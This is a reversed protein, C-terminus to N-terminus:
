AAVTYTFTYIVSESGTRSATVTIVLNTSAGTLDYTSGETVTAGTVETKYTVGAPADSVTIDVCDATTDVYGTISGEAGNAVAETAVTAGNTESGTVTVTPASTVAPTQTVSDPDHSFAITGGNASVSYSVAGSGSDTFTVNSVNVNYTQALEARVALIVADRSPKSGVYQVTITRGSVTVDIADSVTPEEPEEASNNDIVVLLLDSGNDTDSVLVSLIKDDAAPLRGTVASDFDGGDLEILVTEDTLVFEKDGSVVLTSDSIHNAAANVDILKNGTNSASAATLRYTGDSNVSYLYLGNVAATLGDDVNIEVEESTGALIASVVTYDSTVRETGTVYLHDSVNTSALGADEFAVAIVRSESNAGLVASGDTGSTDVSPANRYGTYVDVDEIIGDDNLDVYFFVTSNTAYLGNGLSTSNRTFTFHDNSSDINAATLRIEGDRNMSYAYIRTRDATTDSDFADGLDVSNDALNYAATTGDSLTVKVRDSDINGKEYAWVYAYNYANESVNGVAVIMGNQDLYFTAENDLTTSSAYGSAARIDDSGGTFGAVESISYVEGDVTMSESGKYAELTGTVSEALEVHLKGGIWAAMVYDDEALEDFGVVDDKDDARLDSVSSSITISGDNRDSIRDVQGFYSTNVLIYDAEGDDNHDIITKEVGRSRASEKQESTVDSWDTANGYNFVVQTDNAISLDNDDALATLEKRASASATVNDESVIANGLVTARSANGSDNKVYLVVSKGLVDAGTSVSYTGDNFVNQDADSGYNTVDIRTKGADLAAGHAATSSLNAYENAVVIGEVRIADFVDELMTKGTRNLVTTTGNPNHTYSYTVTEANLVNYIMQAAQDRTLAQSTNINELNEYLGARNALVDTTTQWTAGGIGENASNYGLAVLLMLAAESGTVSDSPGFTGDGRGAIIGRDVCYAIYAEAWNGQTDTFSTTINGLVPEKGGNMVVCVLRAFSARDINQTPGFSGDPLGALIGLETIMSVAETHQIESADTFDQYGAAGAGAVTLGLVMASALATSLARKLNRM